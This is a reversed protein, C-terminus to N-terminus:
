SRKSITITKTTKLGGPGIPAISSRPTSVTSINNVTMGLIAGELHTIDEYEDIEDVAQLPTIALQHTHITRLAQQAFDRFEFVATLEAWFDFPAATTGGQCFFIWGPDGFDTNSLSSTPQFINAATTKNRWTITTANNSETTCPKLKGGGIMVAGIDTPVIPLGAANAEFPRVAYVGTTPSAPTIKLRFSRLRWLSWQNVLSTYDDITGLNVSEVTAGPATAALNYVAQFVHRYTQEGPYAPAPNTRKTSTRRSRSPRRRRQQNKRPM